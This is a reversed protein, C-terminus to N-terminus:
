SPWPLHAAVVQFAQHGLGEVRGSDWATHQVDHIRLSRALGDFVAAQRSAVRDSEAGGALRQGGGDQQLEGLLPQHIQVGRRPAVQGADAEGLLNRQQIKGMVAAAESRVGPRGVQDLSARALEPVGVLVVVQQAIDQRRGGAHGVGREQRAADQLWEAHVLAPTRRQPGSRRPVDRYEAHVDGHPGKIGSRLGPNLPGRARDRRASGIGAPKQGHHQAPSDEVPPAHKGWGGDRHHQVVHDLRVAAWRHGTWETVLSLIAQAPHALLDTSTRHVKVDALNRAGRADEHQQRVDAQAEHQQHVGTVEEDAGRQEPHTLM